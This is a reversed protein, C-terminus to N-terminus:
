VDSLTSITYYLRRYSTIVTLHIVHWTLFPALYQLFQPSFSGLFEFTHRRHPWALQGDANPRIAAANAIRGIM